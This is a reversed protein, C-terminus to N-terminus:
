AHEDNRRCLYNGVVGDELKKDIIHFGARELMGDIVWDFTSFEQSIHAEVERRLKDGGIKELKAIWREINEQVQCNSFIVDALYLHGGPKLMGHLRQLAISKWFDPLHHLATSTVIADAPSAKHRYTLFGAQCFVLNNIGLRKSKREAYALMTSSIDIAYVMACSKAARLAFAGTGTGFEIVTHEPL